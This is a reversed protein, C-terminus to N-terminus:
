IQKQWVEGLYRAEALGEGVGDRSSRATRGVEAEAQAGTWADQTRWLM